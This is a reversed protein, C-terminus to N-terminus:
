GYKATIYRAAGGVVTNKEPIVLKNNADTIDCQIEDSTISDVHKIESLITTSDLYNSSVATSSTTSAM